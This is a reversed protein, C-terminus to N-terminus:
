SPSGHLKLSERLLPLTIPRRTRLSYRDLADVAANIARNHAVKAADVFGLVQVYKHVGLRYEGSLFLSNEERFRFETYSRLTTFGGVYPYVYFPVRQGPNNNVFSAGARGLDSSCM